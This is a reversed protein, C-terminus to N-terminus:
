RHPLVLVDPRMMKALACPCGSLSSPPCAYTTIDITRRFSMCHSTSCRARISKPILSRTSGVDGAGDGPRRRSHSLLRSREGDIDHGHFSADTPLDPESHTATVLHLAVNFTATLSLPQNSERATRSM